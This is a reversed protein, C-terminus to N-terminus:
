KRDLMFESIYQPQEIALNHGCEELVESRELSKFTRLAYDKVTKGYFEIGGVTMVPLDLKGKAVIEKNIKMNKLEARYTELIGRMGGPTLFREKLDEWFEKGLSDPNYASAKLLIGGFEYEHRAIIIGTHKACLLFTCAVVM